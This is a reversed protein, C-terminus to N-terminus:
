PSQWARMKEVVTDPVPQPRFTTADLCAVRVKGDILLEGDRFIQQKFTLSARTTQDIVCGVQLLEGYRAPRKFHAEVDVVVFMANHEDKLPTQEIGIARLWESRAREMFKLYNAYYVIGGADTDEWYVRIPFSFRSSDSASFPSSDSASSPSPDRTVPSPDSLLRAEREDSNRLKGTL